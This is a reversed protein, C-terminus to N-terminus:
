VVSKRDEPFNIPTVSPTPEATSVPTSSSLTFDKNVLDDYYESTPSFDKIPNNGLYLSELNTLKDFTSIDSIRNSSLNLEKISSNEKSFTIEQICNNSLNLVEINVDTFDYKNNSSLGLLNNSLDVKRLKKMKSFEDLPIDRIQNDQVYLEELNTLLSINSLSTLRQNSADLVKIKEVDSKYIEGIPKNIAKRIVKELFSEFSVPYDEPVTFTKVDSHAIIEGDSDYALVYVYWKSNHVFNYLSFRCSTYDTTQKYDPNEFNGDKSFLIDYNKAGYFPAFTLEIRTSSVQPGKKINLKPLDDGTSAFATVASAFYFYSIFLATTILCLLRRFSSM